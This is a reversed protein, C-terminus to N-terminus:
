LLSTAVTVLVMALPLFLGRTSASVAHNFTQPTPAPTRNDNIWQVCSDTYTSKVQTEEIAKILNYEDTRGKALAVQAATQGDSNTQWVNAHFQGEFPVM